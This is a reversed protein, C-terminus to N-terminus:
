DRLNRRGPLVRLYSEDMVFDVVAGLTASQPEHPDFDFSCRHLQQRLFAADGRLQLMSDGLHDVPNLFHIIM